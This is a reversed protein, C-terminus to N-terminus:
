PPSFPSSTTVEFVSKTLVALPVAFFVGMVGWLSGFFLVSLIITTPHLKVTEGLILPTFINADLLQLITYALLPKGADMTLGWQVVGLLAVPVTVVAVGLFPILASLGTLVALLFAYQFEMFIFAIYSSLGLVLMEWFKGRIYGGVGAEVEKLVYDLLGRDRPLLRSLYHVFKAKDKLFFFVLFPVLLLYILISFLGPVGKLLLRVSEGIFDQSSDVMQVLFNEVFAPNILGNASETLERTTLKLTETIRPIENLLNTLQQALTPLLGFIFLNVLLIFLSFVLLVALFRPIHMVRLFRVMGELLYAVVVATFYLALASGFFYIVVMAGLLVLMLTIFQPDDFRKSISKLFTEGNPQQLFPVDSSM